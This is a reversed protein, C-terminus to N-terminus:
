LPIDQRYVSYTKMCLLFMVHKNIYDVRKTYIDNKEMKLTHM